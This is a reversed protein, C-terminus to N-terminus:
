STFQFSNLMKTYYKSMAEDYASAPAFFLINYYYVNHKAALSVVHIATGSPPSFVADEEDWSVGGIMRTTPTNTLVQPSPLSNNTGFGDINATNIDSTSTIQASNAASIQAIYLTVLLQTSPHFAIDKNGNSVQQTKDQVWDSPFLISFGLDTSVGRQFSVPTPLQNGTTTPTPSQVGPTPSTAGPTPSQAAPTATAAPTLPIVRAPQQPGNARNQLALAGYTLGGGVLISAFILLLAVPFALSGAKRRPRGPEAEDRSTRSATALDTSSRQTQGAIIYPLQPSASAPWQPTGAPLYSFAPAQYPMSAGASVPSGCQSCVSASDPLETNCRPCLM